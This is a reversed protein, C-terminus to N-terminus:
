AARKLPLSELGRLVLGPRWVLKDAPKALQMPPLRQLLTNIAIQGELRALASGVCFHGGLGFSLHRNPNRTLDLTHADAFQQEDRNASAIVAFVVTGRAVPEGAIELDQRAYRHTSMDAPSCYRLLEEVAPEIGDPRAKLQAMQEPNQLLALMGNGILSSTTEHGATLLIAIMGVLDDPTLRDGEDDAAVLASVLDDQPARRKQEILWRLYRVMAIMHPLSMLVSLPEMTNKIMTKSWRAFKARDPEPVGLLECIITVPLPLAFDEILDFGQSTDIKDLLRDCVTQTNVRLMEVRRSTFSKQALKRLRAHDPDDRDLMNRLLPKFIPPVWPQKAMEAPTTANSRDKAFRVDKLLAAVDDYRLVLLAEEKNPLRVRVIPTKARLRTYFDVSNAKFASSAIQVDEFAIM